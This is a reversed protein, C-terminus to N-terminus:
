EDKTFVSHENEQSWRCNDLRLRQAALDVAITRGDESISGSWQGDERVHNTGCFRVPWNGDHQYTGHIQHGAITGVFEEVSSSPDGQPGDGYHTGTLRMRISGQPNLSLSWLDYYGPNGTTSTIRRWTGSLNALLQRQREAAAQAEQEAQQQAQRATSEKEYKIGEIKGRVDAADAAKPAALLYFNLAHIADDYQKAKELSLGENYYYEPVWPALQAAQAFAAAAAKMDDSSSASAFITKAEAADVAADDAVAPKPDLTLALKIIKERLSDDSPNKQLDAVCQKLQQRPSSESSQATSRAVGCLALVMAIMCVSPGIRMGQQSETM